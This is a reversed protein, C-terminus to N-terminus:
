TGLQSSIAEDDLRNGLPAWEEPSAVDAVMTEASVIGMRGLARLQSDTSPGCKSGDGGRYFYSRSPRPTARPPLKPQVKRILLAAGATALTLVASFVLPWSTQYAFSSWNERILQPGWNGYLNLAYICTSSLGMALTVLVLRLLTRPAARRFALVLVTASVILMAIHLLISYWGNAFVYDVYLEVLGRSDFFQIDESEAIPFSSPAFTMIPLGTDPLPEPTFARGTLLAATARPGPHHRSSRRASSSATNM